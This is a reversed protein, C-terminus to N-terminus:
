PKGFWVAEGQGPPAVLYQARKDIEVTARIVGDKLAGDVQKVTFTRNGAIVGEFAKGDIGEVQYLAFAGNPDLGLKQLRFEVEGKYHGKPKTCLPEPPQVRWKAPDLRDCGVVINGHNFLSVSAGAGKRYAVYELYDDPAAFELLAAREGLRALLPRLAAGGDGIWEGLYVYVKGKGLAKAIV